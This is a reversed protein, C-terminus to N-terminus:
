VGHPILPIEFTDGFKATPRYCYTSGMYGVLIYRRWLVDICFGMGVLILVRQTSPGKPGSGFRDVRLGVNWVRYDIM